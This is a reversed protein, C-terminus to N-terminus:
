FSKARKTLQPFGTATGAESSALLATRNCTVPNRVFDIEHRRLAAITQQRNGNLLNVELGPNTKMSASILRPVFQKTTSVAGLRLAGGLRKNEVDLPGSSATSRDVIRALSM